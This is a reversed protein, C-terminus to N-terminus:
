LNAAAVFLDDVQQETLGLGPALAAIFASNREWTTAYEWAIKASPNTEPSAMLAEVDDLRGANLLAMRAQYPSVSRPVVAVPGTLDYAQLVESLDRESGIRTTREAPYESLYAGSASSWARSEDEGVIWFWNEPTYHPIM